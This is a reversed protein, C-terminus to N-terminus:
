FPLDDMGPELDEPSVNRPGEDLLAPDSIVADVKEKAKRDAKVWGSDLIANGPHTTANNIVNRLKADMDAVYSPQPEPAAEAAVSVEDQQQALYEKLYEQLMQDMLIGTKTLALTLDLKSFVPVNYVTTGNVEERAEKVQIIYKGTNIKKDLWTSFASGKLRINVLEPEQGEAILMAYVSATFKGGLEKISGKIENYMGALREGGKFTKVLFPEKVISRVENAYISSKHKKCFGTITSLQDLVIFYVPLPLLINKSQDKDYYSFCADESSWEIFKKSPNTLQPKSFSM